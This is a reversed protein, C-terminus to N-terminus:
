EDIAVAVMGSTTNLMLYPVAQESGPQRPAGIGIMEALHVWPVAGGDHPLVSAGELQRVQSVKARGTHEIATTPIGYCQGGSWVSLIRITSVTVPVTLVFTTGASSSSALTIRGQLRQ